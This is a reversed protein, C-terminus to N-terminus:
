RRLTKKIVPQWKVTPTYISNLLDLNYDSKGLPLCASSSYADKVNAYFLDFNTNERNSGNVFQQFILLTASLSVHKFDGSIVMFIMSHQTELRAVVSTM